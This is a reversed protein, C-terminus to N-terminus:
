FMANLMHKQPSSVVDTKIFGVNCKNNSLVTLVSKKSNCQCVMYTIYQRDHNLLKYSHDTLISPVFFLFPVLRVYIFLEFALNMNKTKKREILRPWDM